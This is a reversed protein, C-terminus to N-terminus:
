EESSKAELSLMYDELVNVRLQIASRPDDLWGLYPPVRKPCDFRMKIEAILAQLEQKSFELYELAPLLHLPDVLMVKGPEFEMKTGVGLCAEIIMEAQQERQPKGYFCDQYAQTRKQLDFSLLKVALRRVRDHPQLINTFGRKSVHSNLHVILQYRDLDTMPLDAEPDLYRLVSWVLDEENAQCGAQRCLSEDISQFFWFGRANAAHGTAFFEPRLVGSFLLHEFLYAGKTNGGLLAGSVLMRLVPDTGHEEITRMLLCSYLDALPLDPLGRLEFFSEDILAANRLFHHLKAPTPYIQSLAFALAGIKIVEGGPGRFLAVEPTQSLQKLAQMRKRPDGAVLPLTVTDVRQEPLNNSSALSNLAGAQQWIPTDFDLHSTSGASSGSISVVDEEPLRSPEPMIPTVLTPASAGPVQVATPAIALHM